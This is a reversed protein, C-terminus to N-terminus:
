KVRMDRRRREVTRKVTNEKEARHEKKRKGVSGKGEELATSGLRTCSDQAPSPAPVMSCEPDALFPRAM